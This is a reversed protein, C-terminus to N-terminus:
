KQGKVKGGWVLPGKRPPGKRLKRKHWPKTEEYGDAELENPIGKFAPHNPTFHPSEDLWKRGSQPNPQEAGNYAPQRLEPAPPIDVAKADILKDDRHAPQYTIGPPAPLAKPPQLMTSTTTGDPNTTHRWESGDAREEIRTDVITVRIGHREADSLGDGGILANNNNITVGSGEPHLGLYRARSRKIKLSTDIADLDGAAAKPWIAAEMTDLGHLEQQLVEQRTEVPVLDALAKECYRHASAVSIGLDKAIDAFSRRQLRHQLVEAQRQKRLIAQASTKARGRPHKRPAYVARRERKPKAQKPSDPM